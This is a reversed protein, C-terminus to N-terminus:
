YNLNDLNRPVITKEWTVAAWTTDYLSYVPESSEIRFAV